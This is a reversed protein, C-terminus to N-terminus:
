SEIYDYWGYDHKLVYKSQILWEIAARACEQSQKLDVHMLSQLNIRLMQETFSRQKKIYKLLYEIRTKDFFDCTSRPHVFFMSDIEELKAIDIGHKELEYAELFQIGNGKIGIIKIQLKPCRRKLRVADLKIADEPTLTLLELDFLDYLVDYNGNKNNILTLKKLKPLEKTFSFDSTATNNIVLENLKKNCKLYSLHDIPNDEIELYELQKFESLFSVDNLKNNRLIVVKKDINDRYKKRKTLDIDVLSLLDKEEINIIYDYRDDESSHYMNFSAKCYNRLKNRLEQPSIIEAMNGFRKAWDYVDAVSASIKIIASDENTKIVSFTGFADIVDDIAKNTVRMIISEAKGSYMYPHESIYNNLNFDIRGNVKDRSTELIDFDSIKEVRFSQIKKTKENKGVLYYHNNAAILQYPDIINKDNSIVHLKKDIGYENYYFSVKRDKEIAKNIEDVNFFLDANKERSIESIRYVVPATNKRFNANGLLILKKIIESAYKQSIHKSFLVSDILLRLESDELEDNELYVGKKTREIAYGAAELNTLHRSIAKREITIGCKNLEIIIRRQTLPNEADSFEKLIKLIFLPALSKEM